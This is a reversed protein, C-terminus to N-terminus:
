LQASFREVIARIRRRAATFERRRLHVLLKEHLAVTRDLAAFSLSARGLAIRVRIGWNLSDWAAVFSRNASLVVIRRHFNVLAAAHKQRDRAKIGLRMEALESELGAIGEASMPTALELSREELLARLECAERLEAPAIERVRCGRFRESTVLGSAQLERLAERVPAQSTGFAAALSLEKLRMGARYSGDLIRQVIYDRIRENACIRELAVEPALAPSRDPAAAPLARESSRVRM